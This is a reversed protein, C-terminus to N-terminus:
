AWGWATALMPFIDAGFLERFVGVALCLEGCVRLVADRGEMRWKGAAIRVGAFTRFLMTTADKQGILDLARRLTKELGGLTTIWRYLTSGSFQGVREREKDAESAEATIREQATREQCVPMGEQSVAECYGVADDATYRGARELMQPLTYRKHPLAFPPQLTFPRECCRGKWRTVGCSVKRVVRGVVIVWFTRGRIEHRRFFAPDDAPAGCKPCCSLGPRVHLINADYALIWEVVAAGDAISGLPM